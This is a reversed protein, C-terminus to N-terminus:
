YNKDTKSHGKYFKHAKPIIESKNEVKIIIEGILIQYLSINQNLM